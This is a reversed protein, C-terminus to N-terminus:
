RVSGGVRSLSGSLAPPMDCRGAFWVHDCIGVFWVAITLSRELPADCVGVLDFRSRVDWLDWFAFAITLSRELPADCVGV